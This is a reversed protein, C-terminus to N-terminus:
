PKVLHIIAYQDTEEILSYKAKLEQFEDDKSTTVYYNAGDRMREEINGGVPWGNRNTQYLFAPDGQYPAIVVADRPLIADARAGAAVIAPNNINFYGRVEYWGFALSLIFLSLVMLGNLWQTLHTKGIKLLEVAGIIAMVVGPAVIPLQYYDHNVNGKAFVTFYTFIAFTWVLFLSYNKNKTGFFLGTVFIVFGGTAFILRNLREFILWRFFAGTFRINDGNLLWKSAFSAEPHLSLHYRWLLLPIIALALYLYNPRHRFLTLGHNRYLWYLMPIAMFLAYPKVLTALAFTLSMLLGYRPLLKEAYRVCYYLTIISFAVFTPDPMFVRNYYINYPLFTYYILTALAANNGLLRKALLYLYFAGILSICISVIRGYVHNIGGFKYILAVVANYLPFENMFYRNPNPLQHESLAWLSDSQPYLLNFREQIFNRAVAATDAQRWSHWDALPTNIRYTRVVVFLILTVGVLFAQLYKNKLLQTFNKM